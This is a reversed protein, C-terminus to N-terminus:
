CPQLGKSGAMVIEWQGTLPDGKTVTAQLCRGDNMKLTIRKAALDIKGQRQGVEITGRIELQGALQVTEIDDDVTQLVVLSYHVSVAKGGTLAIYGHGATKELTKRRITM